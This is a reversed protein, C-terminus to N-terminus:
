SQSVCKGYANNGGGYRSAFQEGWFAQEAKCFQAANQYDALKPGPITQWDPTVVYNFVYDTLRTQNSGDANMVYLEFRYPATTPDRGSVFAIKTGDPSWVPDFGDAPSATLRVPATGDSNMVSVNGSLDTFAIKRGDPSWNPEGGGILRRPSTGDANMVYVDYPGNRNTAFAIKSGDPSWSPANDVRREPENTLQALGTGDPRIVWIDYDGDRISTFAIETGDPSWAPSQNATESTLTTISSGDANMLKLTSVDGSNFAIRTGDPSWAPGVSSVEGVQALNSGDPNVVRIVPGTGEYNTFAIKGNKGPFTAHAPAVLVLVCLLSSALVATLRSRM